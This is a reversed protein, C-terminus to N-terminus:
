RRYSIDPQKFTSGSHRIFRIAAESSDTSLYPLSWTVQLLEQILLIVSLSAVQSQM